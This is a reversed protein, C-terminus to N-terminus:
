IENNIGTREKENSRQLSYPKNKRQSAHNIRRSTDEYFIYEDQRSIDFIKFMLYPEFSKNTCGLFLFTQLFVKKIDFRNM